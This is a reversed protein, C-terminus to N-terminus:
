LAVIVLRCFNSIPASHFFHFYECLDSKPCSFDYPLTNMDIANSVLAATDRHAALLSAGVGVTLIGGIIASNKSNM